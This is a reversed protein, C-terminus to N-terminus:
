GGCPTFIAFHTGPLRRDLGPWTWSHEQWYHVLGYFAMVVLTITFSERMQSSGLLVAEPYIAIGWAAIWAM